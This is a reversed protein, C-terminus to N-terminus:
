KQKKKEIDGLTIMAGYTLHLQKLTGGNGLKVEIKSKRIRGYIETLDTVLPSSEDARWWGGAVGAM